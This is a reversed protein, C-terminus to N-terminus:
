GNYKKDKAKVRHKMQMKSTELISKMIAGIGKGVVPICEGIMDFIIEPAQKKLVTGLSDQEMFVIDNNEEHIKKKLENQLEKRDGESIAVMLDLFYPLRVQLLNATLHTEIFGGSEEIANKVELYLNRDPIFLKIRGDEYIAKDSISVLSKRWDFKEYPYLLEKRIKLNSVKTQSIGLLKSLKYDSYASFNDQEKELIRELYISFLLTEMDTKSITGFNSCYCKEAIADFAAAKAEQTDFLSDYNKKADEFKM